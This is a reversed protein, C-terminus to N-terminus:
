NNLFCIPFLLLCLFYYILLYFSTLKLFSSTTLTDFAESFYDGSMFIIQELFTAILPDLYLFDPTKAFDFSMCM